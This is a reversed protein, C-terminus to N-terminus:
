GFGPYRSRTRSSQSRYPMTKQMSSIMVPKRTPREPAWPRRPTVGSRVVRPLPTAPPTGMETTAPLAFIMSRQASRVTTPAPM